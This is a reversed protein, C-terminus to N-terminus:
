NCERLRRDSIVTLTRDAFAIEATQVARRLDSTYVAALETDQWRQGLEVAFDRGSASLEAPLWGTAIGRENDVTRSHAEYILDVVM